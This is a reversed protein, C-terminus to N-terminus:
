LRYLLPTCSSYRVTCIPHFDFQRPHHNHVVIKYPQSSPDPDDSVLASTPYLRSAEERHAFDGNNAAEEFDKRYFVAIQTCPGLNRRSDDHPAFGVGDFEVKYEPYESFM